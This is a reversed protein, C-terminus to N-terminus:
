QGHLCDVYHPFDFVPGVLLLLHLHDNSFSGSHDRDRCNLSKSARKKRSSEVREPWGVM